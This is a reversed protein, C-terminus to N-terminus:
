LTSLPGQGALAFHSMAVEAAAADAAAADAAVVDAAVMGAAVADAAVMGAAMADTAAVVVENVVAMAVCDAQMAVVAVMRMREEAVHGDVKVIGLLGTLPKSHSASCTKHTSVTPLCSRVTYRSKSHSMYMHQTM